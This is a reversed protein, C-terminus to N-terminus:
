WSIKAQIPFHDSYKESFTLFQNIIANNDTLIFDIRLPFLYDYTKGFGKGSEIFADKKNRSITHYIWSYATNNFDGCVIKKGKWQQEHKLFLVTQAAQKKFSGAISEILKESNKEGFNEENPNIRLSEFHVNYIRITDKEKLIDTYIINNGVSKLDFSGSNIIKYKSYIAMGFKSKESKLKVYKYPFSLKVKESQYYEQIVLVDPNKTAIFDFGNEISKTAEKPTFLDFLKVNYSMIKLDSNFSSNKSSIKYFPPTLLGALIVIVFSILFQKKLKILWYIAFAINIILLVPAFLSLVAFLPITKPSVFPLLFSFLLLTALLSNVLFLVKELISLHKM